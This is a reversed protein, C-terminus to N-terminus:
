QDDNEEDQLAPDEEPEVYDKQKKGFLSFHVYRKPNLRMDQLLLELQTSAQSLNNYLEKDKILKGMSGEGSEINNLIKDLNSMSNELDKVVKGFDAENLSNGLKAFQKTMSAINTVSSDLKGKNETLFSNLVISSSKFSSVTANLDAIVNRLNEQTDEDLVENFGVLVSDANVMMSEIKQQLPALQRTVLDTLGPKTSSPLTDGSEALEGEFDPLIQISKGGIIGTDYIEAVSNKSFEFESDVTFSVILLGDKDHFKISTIKGVQFGNITVPTAPALGGVNDYLAFYKRSKDFIPKSKLYNFGLIFLLIGGLVIIATKVERSVKM